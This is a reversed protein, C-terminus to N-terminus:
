GNGSDVITVEALVTEWRDVKVADLFEAQSQERSRMLIGSVVARQIRGSGLDAKRSLRGVLTGLATRLQRGDVAIEDGPDVSTIHGHIPDGAGFRGAFGIDVEAPGLNVYRRDLEPRHQPRVAPLLDCVGDVTRLDVLYPNRGGEARMLVLTQRARTMAVYLLRREDEGDWRWDACDMVIVHRFEQGKAGHVTM